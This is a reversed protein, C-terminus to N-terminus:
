QKEILTILNCNEPLIQNITEQVLSDMDWELTKFEKAMNIFSEFDLNDEIAGIEINETRSNRIEVGALLNICEIVDESLNHKKVVEDWMFSLSTILVKM